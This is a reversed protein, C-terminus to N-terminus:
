NYFFVYGSTGSCYQTIECPDSANKCLTGNPLFRYKPSCCYSNIPDCEAGERLKCTHPYCAKDAICSISTPRGCDCEEGSELVGNGCM